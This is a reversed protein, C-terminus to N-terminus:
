IKAINGSSCQNHSRVKREDDRHDKVAIRATARRQCLRNGQRQIFHKVLLGSRNPKCVATREEIVEFEGVIRHNNQASGLFIEQDLPPPTQGIAFLNRAVQDVKAHRHYRRWIVTQEAVDRPKIVEEVHLANRQHPRFDLAFAHGTCEVNVGTCVLVKLAPQFEEAVVGLYRMDCEFEPCPCSCPVPDRPVNVM